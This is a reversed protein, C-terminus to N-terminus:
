LPDMGAYAPCGQRRTEIGLEPGTWPGDGRLRPLWWALEALRQFDHTWGRLRAALEGPKRHDRRRTWGRTPPAAGIRMASPCTALVFPGDGRLRPLRGSPRNSTARCRGSLDMGAYAPCGTKRLAAWCGQCGRTPPPLWADDTLYAILAPTWGRTPPAARRHASEGAHHRILTWGRTPPAAQRNGRCGGSLVPLPTWGRTPPAAESKPHTSPGHLRVM